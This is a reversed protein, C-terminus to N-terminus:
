WKMWQKLWHASANVRKGNIIVVQDKFRMAVNVIGGHFRYKRRELPDEKGPCIARSNAGVSVVGEDRARTM